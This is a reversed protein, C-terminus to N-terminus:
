IRWLEFNLIVYDPFRNVRRLSKFVLRLNNHVMGNEDTLSVKARTVWLLEIKEYNVSSFICEISFADGSEVRGYDQIANGNILEIKEVRDDFNITFATPHGLSPIDNIYIM